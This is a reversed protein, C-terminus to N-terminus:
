QKILNISRTNYYDIAELLLVNGSNDTRIHFRNPIRLNPLVLSDLILIHEDENTQWRGNTSEGSPNRLFFTGDKYLDLLFAAGYDQGYYTGIVEYSLTLPQRSQTIYIMFTNTARGTADDVARYYYGGEQKFISLGLMFSFQGYSDTDIILPPLETLGPTKIYLTVTNNPTFGSGSFSYTNGGPTRIEQATLAFGPYPLENVSTTRKLSQTKLGPPACAISSTQSSDSRTAVVAVIVVVLGIIFIFPLFAPSGRGTGYRGFRSKM